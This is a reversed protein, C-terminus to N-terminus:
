AQSAYYYIIEWAGYVADINRWQVGMRTVKLICNLAQQLDKNIKIGTEVFVQIKAEHANTLETLKQVKINLKGM